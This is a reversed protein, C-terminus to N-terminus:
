LQHMMADISVSKARFNASDFLQSMAPVDDKDALWGLAAIAYARTRPDARGTLEQLKGISNGDRIMGLSIVAAGRVYRSLALDEKTTEIVSVLKAVDNTDGVFGLGLVVGRRVTPDDGVSDLLDRLAKATDKPQAQGVMGMAMAAYARTNVNRGPDKAIDRLATQATSFGGLGAAMAMASLVDKDLKAESFGTMYYKRVDKDFGGFYFLALNAYQAKVAGKEPAQAVTRLEDPASKWEEEDIEGLVRGLSVAALGATLPDPKGLGQKNALLKAVSAEKFNGLAAAAAREVEQSSKELASELARQAAHVADKDDDGELAGFKGLAQACYCRVVDPVGKASSLGAILPKVAEPARLAGLAVAACALQDEMGSKRLNSNFYDLVAITAAARDADQSLGLGLLAFSALKGGKDNKLTEILVAVADKSRTMGLAVLADQKVAIDSEQALHAKLLEVAAPTGLKGLAIVAADRVVPERAFQMNRKLIDFIKNRDDTTVDSRQRTDPPLVGFVAASSHTPVRIRRSQTANYRAILQERNQEFFWSAIYFQDNTSSQKTRGGTGGSSSGGSGSPAGGGSSGTGGTSKGGSTDAGGGADPGSSGGGGGEPAGSGGGGGGEPSGGGSGGGSGEAGTGGGSGGSDGKQSDGSGSSGGSGTDASSGSDKEKSLDEPGRYSGGLREAYAGRGALLVAVVSLVYLTRRTM